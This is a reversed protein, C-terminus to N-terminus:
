VSCLPVYIPEAGSQASGMRTLNSGSQASGMRNLNSGSQASGMRTLNPGTTFFSSGIEDRNETLKGNM